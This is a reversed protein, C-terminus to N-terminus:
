IRPSYLFAEPVIVSVVLYYFFFGATQACQHMSAVIVDLWKHLTEPANVMTMRPMTPILPSCLKFIGNIVFDTELPNLGQKTIRRELHLMFHEVHRMFTGLNIHPAVSASRAAARLHNECIDPLKDANAQLIINDINEVAEYVHAMVDKAPVPKKTTM